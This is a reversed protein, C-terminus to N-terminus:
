CPHTVWTWSFWNAAGPVPDSSVHGHGHIYDNHTDTGATNAYMVAAEAWDPQTLSTMTFWADIVKMPHRGVMWEPLGYIVTPWRGDCLSAFYRGPTCLDLSTTTFSCMIHMGQFAQRWRDFVDYTSGGRDAEWQLTNCVEFAIWELDQGGLRLDGNSPGSYHDAEIRDDDPVDCRFYAAVFPGGHGTFYVFDTADVWYDATGGKDPRKFDQEWANQDGWNFNGVWGDHNVLEYYFGEADQDECGLPNHCDYNNIWEVGVEKAM